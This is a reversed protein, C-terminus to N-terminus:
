TVPLTLLLTVLKNRMHLDLSSLHTLSLSVAARGHLTATDVLM